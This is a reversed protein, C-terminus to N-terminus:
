SGATVKAAEDGRMRWLVTGLWVSWVPAVIVGGLGAGIDVLLPLHALSGVFVAGYLLAGFIGLWPLVPGLARRAAWSFSALWLGLMGFSFLGTPDLRPLGMAVVASRAPIDLGGFAAAISLAKSEMLAFDIAAATLGVLGWVEAIRYSLSRPPAVLQRCGVVVATYALSAVVFSWYHIRFAGSGAALSEFFAQTVGTALHLQERPMMFHSVGVTAAAVAAVFAFIATIRTERM